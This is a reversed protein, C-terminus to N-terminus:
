APREARAFLPASWRLEHDLLWRKRDIGGGYGTLTKDAGIVRHCPVVIGIPNAGNALGVARCASPSGIAAALRGYSTTTGAPIRRLAAWVRRQFDTGGTRVDVADIARVEGAFFAALADTVRAALRGAVLVQGPGYHRQLTRRVLVEDEHFDLVCLRGKEDCVGLLTGMPSPVREFVFREPTQKM